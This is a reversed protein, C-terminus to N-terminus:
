RPRPAAIMGTTWSSERETVLGSRRLKGADDRPLQSVFEYSKPIKYSALRERCHTDLAAVAPPNTLDRGQIVAHVRKGWDEDPVGIVAVDGVGAHETLAAEIEAPYVNAGGTIILDVRRDALFLYGEGDVWGLDGVSTFGDPTAKAPPSGIYEYTPGASHPRMFIEGVEGPPLDSGEEDLIRLDCGYPRGVSGPHALWEDGRIGTMGVAESSGFGERVKEGGILDIWARKLWPPCPAATHLIADFSSFDRQGIDPLQVIRRMMTPALFAFNVRHREILDAARAADFRDMLVLTHGEQLGGHGWGFPPNHYLPGAILQVQDARLGADFGGEVVRAGERYVLPRPDVIIKPRGTSGGSAIAKGPHPIRDPLPEASLGVSEALEDTTVLPFAVGEWDAVVVAPASLELIQDRERGPLAARLPLVLAGLKWAAFTAVYHEPCNPLGVVVLSREGVGRGALLRAVQNSREDLERWTVVREAGGQPAFVIVAREPRAAALLSLRRGYSVAEVAQTAM